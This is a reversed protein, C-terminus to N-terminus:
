AAAKQKQSTARLFGQREAESLRNWCAALYARGEGPSAFAAWDRAETRLGDFPPVPTGRRADYLTAEALAEATDPNLAMMGASALCLQEMPDLRARFIYALQAALRGPSPHGPEGAVPLIQLACVLARAADAVRATMKAELEPGLGPAAALVEVDAASPLRFEPL